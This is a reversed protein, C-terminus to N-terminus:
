GRFHLVPIPMRREAELRRVAAEVAAAKARAAVAEREQVALIKRLVGLVDNQGQGSGSQQLRVAEQSGVEIRPTAPPSDNRLKAVADDYASAVAIARLDGTVLKADAAEGIDKIRKALSGLPDLTAGLNKNIADAVAVIKQSVGGVPAMFEVTPKPKASEPAVKPPRTLTDVVSGRSGRINRLLHDLGGGPVAGAPLALAAGGQAAPIQAAPNAVGALASEIERIRQNHADLNEPPIDGTMKKLTALQARIEAAFAPDTAARPVGPPRPLAPPLAVSGPTPGGLVGGVLGNAAGTAMGGITALPRESLGQRVEGITDRASHYAKAADAIAKAAEMLPDILNTKLGAGAAEIGEKLRYAGIAIASGIDIAFDAAAEPDIRFDKIGGVLRQLSLSAATLEPVAAVIGNLSVSAVQAAVRGVEFAVQAAGRALDGAFRIAPRLQDITGKIRGTFSDLDSAAGKLDLEEVLAKGVQRKLDDYADGLKDFAGATSEAYQEGIGANLSKLAKVVDAVGIEGQSALKKIAAEPKGMAKALADIIPVNAETFQNIEEGALRGSTVVDRYAKSVRGMTEALNGNSAGASVDGLTRLTPVVQEAAVGVALLAKAQGAADGFALPSAGAFDKVDALLAKAKEIGGLTNGITLELTEFDAAAHVASEGFSRVTGAGAAIADLAFTTGGSAIGAAVGLGLSAGGIVRARASHTVARQRESRAVSVDLNKVHSKADAVAKALPAANGTFVISPSAIVDSM